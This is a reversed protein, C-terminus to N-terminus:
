EKEARAAGGLTGAESRTLTEGREKKEEIREVKRSTDGSLSPERTDEGKMWSATRHEEKYEEERGERKAERQEKAGQRMAGMAGLHGAEERTLTEGRAKKEEIREAKERNEKSPGEIRTMRGALRAGHM